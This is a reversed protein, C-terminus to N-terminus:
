NYILSASLNVQRHCPTSVTPSGIPIAREETLVAALREIRSRRTRAFHLHMALWGAKRRIRTRGACGNRGSGDDRRNGDPSSGGPCGGANAARDAILGGRGAKGEALVAPRPHVSRCFKGDGRGTGDDGRCRLGGRRAFLPPRACQATPEDDQATIAGVPFRHRKGAIAEIDAAGFATTGERVVEAHGAPVRAKKRM